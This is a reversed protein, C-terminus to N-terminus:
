QVRGSTKATKKKKMWTEAETWMADFEEDTLDDTIEYEDIETEFLRQRGKVPIPKIGRVNSLHWVYRDNKEDFTVDDLSVVAALFSNYEKTATCGIFFDGRHKTPWTRYEKTKKGDLIDAVYEPWIMLCKM